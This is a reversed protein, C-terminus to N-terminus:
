KFPMNKSLFYEILIYGDFNINHTYVEILKVNLSLGEKEIQNLFLSIIDSNKELYFNYVCISTKLVFLFPVVKSNNEFTEIDMVFYKKM